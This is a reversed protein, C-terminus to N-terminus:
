RSSDPQGLIQLFNQTWRTQSFMERYAILCNDSMQDRLRQDRIIRLVAECIQEVDHSDVVIGTEGDRIIEPLGGASTVVSPVGYKVADIVALPMPDRTSLQLYAYSNEYFTQPEKVYGPFRISNEIGERVAVDKAEALLAGEGLWVFEVDGQYNQLIRSAVKVWLLPSKEASLRGVMLVTKKGGEWRKPKELPEGTSNPLTYLRSDSESLGWKTAIQNKTFESVGVLKANPSILRRFLPGALQHKKGAPTSHFLYISDAQGYRRWLFRGPSTLSFIIACADPKNRAVWRSIKISELIYGLPKGWVARPSALVSEEVIDLRAQTAALQAVEQDLSSQRTLFSVSWENNLLTKIIQATVTNPGSSRLGEGVVIAIKTPSKRSIGPM